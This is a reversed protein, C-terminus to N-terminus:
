KDSVVDTTILILMRKRNSPYGMISDVSRVFHIAKAQNLISTKFEELVQPELVQGDVIYIYQDSDKQKLFFDIQMKSEKISARKSEDSWQYRHDQKLPINGIADFQAYSGTASFVCFFLAFLIQTRIL